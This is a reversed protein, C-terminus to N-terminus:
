TTPPAATASRAFVGLVTILSVLVGVTAFRRRM